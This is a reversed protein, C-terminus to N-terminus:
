QARMRVDHVEGPEPGREQTLDASEVFGQTDRLVEVQHKARGLLGAPDHVDGFDEVLPADMAARGAVLLHALDHLGRAAYELPVEPTAAVLAADLRAGTEIEEVDAIRDSRRQFDRDDDRRS